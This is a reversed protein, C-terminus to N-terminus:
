SGRQAKHYNKSCLATLTALFCVVVWSTIVGPWGSRDVVLGTLPGSAAAGIYVACDLFGAAASIRREKQFNLPLFATLINNTAFISMTLASLAIVMSALSFAMSIRLAFAAISATILFFVMIHKERHNFLRYVFSCAGLAAFNMFPVLSMIFLVMDMPLFRFESFLAPGWLTLGEKISGLLMSVLAAVWLRSRIIFLLPSERYLDNGTKLLGSTGADSRPADAAPLGYDRFLWFWLLSICILMAGPIFFGAKWGFVLSLRGVLTYSLLYGLATSSSFALTMKHLHQKPTVGAIIRILPGWLMSQFYGNLTWFIFMPALQRVNGFLINSVGACFLGLAVFYRPNFRDGLAGNILQGAAYATFFGGAVIGLSAKSFGYTDHLSPLCISLNVRGFYASVYALWCFGGILWFHRPHKLSFAM